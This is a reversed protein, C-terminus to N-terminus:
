IKRKKHRVKNFDLILQEIIKKRKFFILYMGKINSLFNCNFFIFIIEKM